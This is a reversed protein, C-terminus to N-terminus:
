HPWRSRGLRLDPSSSTPSGPTSPELSPLLLPVDGRGGRPVQHALRAGVAAAPGTPWRPGRRVGRLMAGGPGMAATAGPCRWAGDCDRGPWTGKSCSKPGCRGSRPRGHGSGVVARAGAWCRRWWQQEGRGLMEAAVAARRQRRRAPTHSPSPRDLLLLSPPPSSSPPRCPAAPTSPASRTAAPSRIPLGFALTQQSLPPS